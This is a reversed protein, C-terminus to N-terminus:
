FINLKYTLSYQYNSNIVAFMGLCRFKIFFHHSFIVNVNYVTLKCFFGTVNKHCKKETKSSIGYPGKRMPAINIFRTM